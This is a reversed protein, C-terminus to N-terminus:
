EAGSDVARVDIARVGGGHEPGAPPDIELDGFAEEFIGALGLLALSGFQPDSWGGAAFDSAGAVAIARSRLLAQCPSSLTAM